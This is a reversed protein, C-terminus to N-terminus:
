VSDSIAQLHVRPQLFQSLTARAIVIITKPKKKNKKLNEKTKEWAANKEVFLQLQSDFSSKKNQM